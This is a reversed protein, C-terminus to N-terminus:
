FSRVKGPAPKGCDSKAARELISQQESATILGAERFQATAQVIARVYQGHNEWSGECPALQDISCGRANVITGQPTDPCNDHDDAIGDNDADPPREPRLKVAWLDYDGYNPTTKNGDIGSASVLGVVFGGDKTRAVTRVGDDGRGGLRMEWASTGDAALRLLWGDNLPYGQEDRWESAAYGGLLFGGDPLEVMQLFGANTGSARSWIENGIPDLRTM